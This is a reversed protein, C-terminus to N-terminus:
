QLSPSDNTYWKVVSDYSLESHSYYRLVSDLSIGKKKSKVVAQHYFRYYEEEVPWNEFYWIESNDYEEKTMIHDPSTGITTDGATLENLSDKHLLVNTFPISDSVNNDSVTDAHKQCSYLITSAFVSLIFLSTTRKM